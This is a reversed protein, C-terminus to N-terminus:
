RRHTHLKNIMASVAFRASQIEVSMPTPPSPFGSSFGTAAASMCESPTKQPVLRNLAITASSNAPIAPAATTSASRFAMVPQAHDQTNKPTRASAVNASVTVAYVALLNIAPNRASLFAGLAVATDAPVPPFINELAALAAIALYIGAPPLGALWSILEHIM